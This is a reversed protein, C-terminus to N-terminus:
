VPDNRALNYLVFIFADISPYSIVLLVEGQEIQRLNPKINGKKSALKLYKPLM